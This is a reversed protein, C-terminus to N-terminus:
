KVFLLIYVLVLIGIPPGLWKIGDIILRSAPIATVQHAYEIIARVEEANFDHPQGSQISAAMRQLEEKTKGRYEGDIEYDLSLMLSKAKDEDSHPKFGCTACKNIPQGKAAGCRICVAVTM